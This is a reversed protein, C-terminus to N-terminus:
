LLAATKCCSNSFLSSLVGCMGTKRVDFGGEVEVSREGNIDMADGNSHAGHSLFHSVQPFKKKLLMDTWTREKVMRVAFPFVRELDKVVDDKDLGVL